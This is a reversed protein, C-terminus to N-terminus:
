KVFKISERLGDKAYTIIYLGKPLAGLDTLQVKGNELAKEQSYVLSGQMNYVDFKIAGQLNTNLELRIQDIVPNPFAKATTTNVENELIGVASEQYVRVYDIEMAGQIFSPKISSEIAVNLLIFQEENFPWTNANKVAPQYTFHVISDISFVLKNATWELAYVHFDSIATPIFQGASNLAGGQYTSPTHYASSVHNPKDGWHEMIDIEGCDPWPKNGFGQTQWYAGKENINKGLLWIAPWTGIGSPIKARVEVRGYKFAFKSNLRASTYSKTVGQNSFSEKKAVIHLKGNQVYSNALRNTYHQVEGNFWSDGVPFQTQHFWQNSDIPGNATFEDSWVLQNYVVPPPLPITNLHFFDDIYARVQNTNGEGNVQIVIRDFDIREAPAPSNPDFNIYTDTVFNFTVVQWQNLLIPKDIGVNSQWANVVNSNELKLTVRNNQAGTIGNSPVYIKFSFEPNAAINLKRGALFSINGYINGYDFYELVTATTNIGQAVPNALNTNMACDFASWTNINGNGEFDDEINQANAGTALVVLISLLKIQFLRMLQQFIRKAWLFLPYFHLM